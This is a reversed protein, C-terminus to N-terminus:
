PNSCDVCFVFLSRVCFTRFCVFVVGSYYACVAASEEQPRTRKVGAARGTSRSSLCVRVFALEILPLEVTVLGDGMRTSLFVFFGVFVLQDTSM